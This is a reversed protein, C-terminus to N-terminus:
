GESAKASCGFDDGGHCGTRSCGGCKGGEGACNGALRADWSGSSKLSRGAPEGVRAQVFEEAAGGHLGFARRVRVCVRRVCVLPQLSLAGHGGDVIDGLHRRDADVAVAHAAFGLTRAHLQVALAHTQTGRMAVILKVARGRFVWHFAFIATEPKEAEVSILSTSSSASDTFHEMFSTSCYTSTTCISPYSPFTSKKNINHYNAAVRRYATAVTSSSINPQVRPLPTSHIVRRPHPRPPISLLAPVHVRVHASTPISKTAPHPRSM